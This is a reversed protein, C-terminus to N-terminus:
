HKAQMSAKAAVASKDARQEAELSQRKQESTMRKGVIIIQPIPAKDSSAALKIEAPAAVALLAMLLGGFFIAARGLMLRSYHSLTSFTFLTTCALALIRSM